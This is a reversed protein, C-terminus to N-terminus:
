NFFIESFIYFLIKKLVFSFLMPVSVRCRSFKLVSGARTRVYRVYGKALASMEGYLKIGILKPTMQRCLSSSGITSITSQQQQLAAANNMAEALQGLAKPRDRQSQLAEWHTPLLAALLDIEAVSWSERNRKRGRNEISGGGDGLDDDRDLRAILARLGSGEATVRKRRTSSYIM